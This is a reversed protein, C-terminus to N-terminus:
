DLRGKDSMGVELSHLIRKAAQLMEWTEGPPLSGCSLWIQKLLGGARRMEAIAEVDALPIRPTVKRAFIRRRAYESLSLNAKEAEAVLTVYETVSLSVTLNKRTVM